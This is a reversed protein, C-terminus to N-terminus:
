KGFNEILRTKMQSFEEENIVGMEKLQALEKLKNVIDSNDTKPSETKVENKPKEEKKEVTTEKEQNDNGSQKESKKKEAEDKLDEAVKKGKEFQEDYFKRFRDTDFDLFTGGTEFHTKFVQGLAYTSAGSLASMSIGGLASGVIPIMKVLASAGLRSLGSGTLATILAKGETEKFDIDYIFSMSKIMDLQVAAVALFDAVPFPIFGAGMSWLVHNRITKEAKKSKDKDNNNSMNKAFKYAKYIKKPDIM